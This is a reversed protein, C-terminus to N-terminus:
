PDTSYREELHDMDGPMVWLWNVENQVMNKDHSATGKVATHIAQTEHATCQGPLFCLCALLYDLGQFVPLPAQQKWNHLFM